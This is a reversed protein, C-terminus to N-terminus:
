LEPLKRIADPNNLWHQITKRFTKWDVPKKVFDVAGADLAYKVTEDDRIGSNLIIPVKALEPKSRIWRCLDLGNGDPMMVDLIILNPRNASLWERAAAADPAPYVQYGEGKLIKSLLRRWDEEDDVILILANEGTM